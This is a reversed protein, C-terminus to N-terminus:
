RFRAADKWHKLYNGNHLGSPIRDPLWQPHSDAFQRFQANTVLNADISFDDVRVRHRPVEDQFLPPADIGFIKMFKPIDRAEIGMWFEDGRIRVM